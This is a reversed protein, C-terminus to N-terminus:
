HSSRFDQGRQGGGRESLWFNIVYLFPSILIFQESDTEACISKIIIYYECAGPDESVM